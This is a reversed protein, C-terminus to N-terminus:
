PEAVLLRLFRRRRVPDAVTVADGLTVERLSGTGAESEDVIVGDVLPLFASGLSSRALDIWPSALDDSAQITLIVDTRAPDRTFKFELTGAESIGCRPLISPGPQIGLPDGGLAYELLNPIGNRNPDANDAADGANAGSGFHALRWAERPTAPVVGTGTLRLDFAPDDPDDSLIKLITSRFGPAGPSFSVKFTTVGSGAPLISSMGSTDVTFDAAQDGAVNVGAINLPQSGHNRVVYTKVTGNAALARTAFDSHAQTLLVSRGFGAAIAKVGTLGPPFALQGYINSGWGVVTGDHKLALSHEPATTIAVVGSLGGPIQFAAADSSNGWGIVTGDSKLALSHDGAAADAM